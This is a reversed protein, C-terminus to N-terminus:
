NFTKILKYTPVNEKDKTYSYVMSSYDSSSFVEGFSFTIYEKMRLIDNEDINSIDKEKFVVSIFESTRVCLLDFDGIASNYDKPLSYFELDEPVEGSNLIKIIEKEKRSATVIKDPSYSKSSIGYHSIKYGMKEFLKQVEVYWDYWNTKIDEGWFTYNIEKNM